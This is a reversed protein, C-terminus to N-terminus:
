FSLLFSSFIVTEVVDNETGPVVVVKVKPADLVSWRATAEEFDESGPYYIKASPSLKKGLETLDDIQCPTFGGLWNRTIPVSQCALSMFWSTVASIVEM